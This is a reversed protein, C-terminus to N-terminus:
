RAERCIVEGQPALHDSYDWSDVIRDGYMLYITDGRNNWVSQGPNHVRLEGAPQEGPPLHFNQKSGDDHLYYGRTDMPEHLLVSVWEGVEDDDNDNDPDYLACWIVIPGDPLAGATESAGTSWMGLGDAQAADVAQQYLDQYRVNPQVTMVWAWGAEALALNLQRVPVDGLRWDGHPDAVYAYALLRGYIDELGLDLELWVLRDAPLLSALFETAMAGFAAAGPGPQGVEPADVGILRVKRPGVNSMVVLTDGDSVSIVPVPGYIPGVPSRQAQAMALVLLAAVLLCLRTLWSM